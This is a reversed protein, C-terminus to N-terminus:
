RIPGVENLVLEEVSGGVIGVRRGKLENLNDLEESGQRAAIM